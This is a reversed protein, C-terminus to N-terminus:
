IKKYTAEFWMTLGLILEDKTIKPAWNYIELVKKNDSVFFAQDKSRLNKTTFQPSKGTLKELTKILELISISNEIGGGINFYDFGKYNKTAIVFLEYLDKFHLIDRVQLGEGTFYYKEGAVFKETFYSVWGQDDTAFQREGSISSQRFILTPISFTEAYTKCLQEAAYKSTGYPGAPNIWEGENIGYPHQPMVFRTLEREYKYQSLDGYVKNTSAFIFAQLSKFRRASELLNQTGNANIEFDAVPDDISKQYSVQGALHWVAQIDLHSALFKELSAKDRIDIKEVRLGSENLLNNATVEARPRSFNDLLVLEHDDVSALRAFNSGIFGAAGTILIKM